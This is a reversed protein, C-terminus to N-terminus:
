EVPETIGLINYGADVYLVEGTTKAALNSCLFVAAAGVDETTVNQHLPAVEAFHKYM